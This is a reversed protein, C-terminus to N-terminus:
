YTLWSKVGYIGISHDTATGLCGSISAVCSRSHLLLLEPCDDDFPNWFESTVQNLNIVQSQFTKQLSLCKEHCMYNEEESMCETKFERLLQMEEPGSIM